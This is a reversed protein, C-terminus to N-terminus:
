RYAKAEAAVKALDFTDIEGLLENTVLDNAPVKEKIVGWTLMFDVYAAYNCLSNEGV